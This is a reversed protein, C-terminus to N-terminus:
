CRAKVKKELRPHQIQNKKNLKKEQFLIKDIHDERKSSNKSFGM